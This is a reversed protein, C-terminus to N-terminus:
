ENPAIPDTSAYRLYHHRSELSLGHVRMLHNDFRALWADAKSVPVSGSLVGHERLVTAIFPVSVAAKCLRGQPDHTDPSRTQERVHREVHGQNAEVV